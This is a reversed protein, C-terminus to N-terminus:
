NLLEGKKPQDMFLDIGHKKAEAEGKAGIARVNLDTVIAAQLIIALHKKLDDTTPESGEALQQALPRTSDVVTAHFSAYHDSMALITDLALDYHKETKSSM